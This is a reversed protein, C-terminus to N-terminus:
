YLHLCSNDRSWDALHKISPTDKMKIDRLVIKKCLIAHLYGNLLCNDMRAQEVSICIFKAM